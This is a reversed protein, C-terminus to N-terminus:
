CKSMKCSKFCRSPVLAELSTRFCGKKVVASGDGKDPSAAAVVALVVSAL